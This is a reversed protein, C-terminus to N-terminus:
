IESDQHLERIVYLHVCGPQVQGTASRHIYQLGAQADPEPLAAQAQPCAAQLPPRTAAACRFLGHLWVKM